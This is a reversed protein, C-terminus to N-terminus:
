SLRARRVLGAALAGVGLGALWCAVVIGLLIAGLGAYESEGALDVRAYVAYPVVACVAVLALAGLHHRLALAIALGILFPAVGLVLYEM